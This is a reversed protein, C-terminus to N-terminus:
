ASRWTAATRPSTSTAPSPRHVTVNDVGTLPASATTSDDYLVSLTQAALRLEWVRGDGKTTFFLRGGHVYIGEGGNFATTTTQPRPRDALHRGLHGRQGDVRAAYLTGASLDGPTTPSSVTCGATPTTRPSTCTGTAPDVGAAEHNFAGM